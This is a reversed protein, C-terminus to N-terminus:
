LSIVFVHQTELIFPIAIVNTKVHNLGLPFELKHTNISHLFFKTKFLDADEMGPNYNLM